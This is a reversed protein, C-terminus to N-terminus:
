ILAVIEGFMVTKWVPWFWKSFHAHKIKFIRWIEHHLKLFWPLLVTLTFNFSWLIICISLIWVDLKSFLSTSRYTFTFTLHLFSYAIVIIMISWIENIHTWLLCLSRGLHRLNILRHLVMHGWLCPWNQGRAIIQYLIKYVNM